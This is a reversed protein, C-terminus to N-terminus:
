LALGQEAIRKEWYECCSEWTKEDIELNRNEAINKLAEETLDHELEDKEEKSLRIYNIQSSLNEKIRRRNWCYNKKIFNFTQEKINKKEEKTKKPPEGIFEFSSSESNNKNKLSAIEAKLRRIEEDKESLESELRKNKKEAYKLSNEKEKNKRNQIELKSQLEQIFDNKEELSKLLESNEKQLKEISKQCRELLNDAGIKVMECPLPNIESILDMLKQIKKCNKKHKIKEEKSIGNAKWEISPDLMPIACEITAFESISDGHDVFIAKDKGEFTRLGRGVIQFFLPRSKIHRFSFMYSVEPCDFGYTLLSANILGDIKHNKLNQILNEREKIGMEGHIVPMQFGAKIMTESMIEAIKISPAFGIALRKTGDSKIGYKQYCQVIDGSIKYKNMIELMQEGSLEDSAGEPKIDTIGELPRSYYDLKSLYGKTILSSITEGVLVEDFCGYKHIKEKGKEDTGKLLALGDHREPTATLGIFRKPKISDILNKTQKIGIHCEDFILVVNEKESIKKFQTRLSDKSAIIVKKNTLKTKDSWIIDVEGFESEAQAILELRPVVFVVIHNAEVLKKIIDFAIVTKGAGTPLCLIPNKKSNIVLSSARKQYDRLIKL